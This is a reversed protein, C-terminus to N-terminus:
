DYGLEALDDEDLGFQHGIEHLVTIRIEERVRAENSFAGDGVARWGGATRIVGERFIHIDGPLEGSAEVTRETNARGTHLGCLDMAEDSEPDEIGLERCIAASPRDEVILPMEELVAAVRPPLTALVDELIADFRDREGGTM